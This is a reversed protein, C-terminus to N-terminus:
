GEDEEAAAAAEDDADDDEDEAAAEEEPDETGDAAAASDGLGAALIPSEALLRTLTWHISISYPWLGRKAIALSIRRKEEIHRIVVVENTQETQKNQKTKNQKNTQEHLMEGNLTAEGRSQRIPQLRIKHM